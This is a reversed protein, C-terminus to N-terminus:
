CMLDCWSFSGLSLISTNWVKGVVQYEKSEWLTINAKDHIKMWPIVYPLYRQTIQTFDVQVLGQVFFTVHSFIIGYTRLHKTLIKM